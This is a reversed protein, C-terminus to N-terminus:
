PETLRHRFWRKVREIIQRVSLEPVENQLQQAFNRRQLLGHSILALFDRQQLAELTRRAHLRALRAAHLLCACLFSGRAAIATTTAPLRQRPDRGLITDHLGLNGRPGTELAVLIEDDLIQDDPRRHHPKSSLTPHCGIAASDYRRQRVTNIAM